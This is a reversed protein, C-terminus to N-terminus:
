QQSVSRFVPHPELAFRIGHEEFVRTGQYQPIELGPPDGAM